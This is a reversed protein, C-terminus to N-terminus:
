QQAQQQQPQQAQQQQQQPQQAQQPNEPTEPTKRMAGLYKPRIDTLDRRRRLLEDVFENDRQHQPEEGEFPIMVDISYIANGKRGQAFLAKPVMINELDYGQLRGMNSLQQLAQDVANMKAADMDQVQNAPIKVTIKNGVNKVGEYGGQDDWQLIRDQNSDGQRYKEEDEVLRVLDDDLFPYVPRALERQLLIGRFDQRGVLDRDQHRKAAQEKGCGGDELLM